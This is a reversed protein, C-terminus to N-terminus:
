GSNQPPYRLPFRHFASAAAASPLGTTVFMLATNASAVSELRIAYGVSKGVGEGREAAVRSAVSVASIRRPQSCLIRCPRGAAAAAELIYQPVQTTKGCGTEGAVIIVQHKDLEALM